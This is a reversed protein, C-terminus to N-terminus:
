ENDTSLQLVKRLEVAVTNCSDLPAAKCLSVFSVRPRDYELQKYSGRIRDSEAAVLGRRHLRTQLSNGNTHKSASLDTGEEMHLTKM